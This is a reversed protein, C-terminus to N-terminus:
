EISDFVSKYPGSQEITDFVSYYRSSQKYQHIDFRGYWLQIYLWRGSSSGETEMCTSSM